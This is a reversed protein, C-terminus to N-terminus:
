LEQKRLSAMKIGQIKKRIQALQEVREPSLVQQRGLMHTTLAIKAFHEVTEMHMYATLLEEGRAVVGHNAMLVANHDRVLPRLSNVLEETGPTAYPALPVVGLEIVIESVLARDLAIGAAAFGTATPPHAHVIASTEPCESYIMLHMAIESSVERFGELRRGQMDVTVLDEVTMMGKCMCTPTALIRNESLRVSINGDTAAIFGRDHLLKGVRVIEQRVEYATM